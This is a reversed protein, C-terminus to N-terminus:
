GGKKNSIIVPNTKVIVPNIPKNVLFYSFNCNFIKVTPIIMNIIEVDNIIYAYQLASYKTSYMGFYDSPKKNNILRGIFLSFNKSHERPIM